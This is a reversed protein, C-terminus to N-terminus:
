RRGGMKRLTEAFRIAAAVPKYHEPLVEDGIKLSAHLARTTPPDHRIAVGAAMARERIALAIHDVGKAVCIPAGGRMRDWKLAVAYHTPNVLVVDATDVDKMMQSMAIEYGKQRRQQKMHPDGESAKAEDQLEQFSMRNKRIHEAYQFSCDLVGIVLAVVVVKALFLRTLEFLSLVIGRAELGSLSVLEAAGDVFVYALLFSYVTLKTFSKAFEFLGARGFKQKANGLISIREAKPTLKSPTFVLARQCLVTTLVVLTPIAFLPSMGVGIQLIISGLHGGAGGSSLDRSLYDANTLLSALHQGAYEFGWPGLTIACLLFGAYAAVTNLDTSKAFEGKKRADDLKKQTPEHNKETDDDSM